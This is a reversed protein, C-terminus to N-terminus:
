KRLEQEITRAGDTAFVGGVLRQDDVFFTPTANILRVRGEEMDREITQLKSPDAYCSTFLSTDLQTSQAIAMYSTTPDTLAEWNSQTAFLQDAYPWFKNQEAACEAAHAANMANKHIRTLPFYKYAFRVKGKYMDLFSHVTPQMHACSPCQFDSYEVITVKARPDGIERAPPTALIPGWDTQKVAYVAIVPLAMLVLGTLLRKM